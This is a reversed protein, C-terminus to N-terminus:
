TSLRSFECCGALWDSAFNFCDGSLGASRIERQSRQLTEEENWNDM